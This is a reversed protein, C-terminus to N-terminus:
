WLDFKAYLISLHLLIHTDANDASLISQKLRLNDWSKVFVSFATFGVTGSATLETRLLSPKEFRIEHLVWVIEYQLGSM